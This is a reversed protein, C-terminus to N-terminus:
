SGDLTAGEVFEGALRLSNTLADYHLAAASPHPFLTFGDADTLVCPTPAPPDPPPPLPVNEVLTASTLAAFDSAGPGGGPPLLAPEATLFFFPTFVPPAGPPGGFAFVLRALPPDSPSVEQLHLAIPGLDPDYPPDFLSAFAPAELEILQGALSFRGPNAPTGPSLRAAWAGEAAIMLRRGGGFPRLFFIQPFSGMEPSALSASFCAPGALPGVLQLRAAAPGDTALSEVFLGDAALGLPPATLDVADGPELLLHAPLTLHAALTRADALPPAVRRALDLLAPASRADLWDLSHTLPPNTENSAANPAAPAPEFPFFFPAADLPDAPDAAPHIRDILLGSPLPSPEPHTEATALPHLAAAPTLSALTALPPLADARHLTLRDGRSRLWAAMERAASDILNGLRLQSSNLVRAFAAGVATLEDRIADFSAAHLSSPDLAAFRPDTLLVELVDIPHDALGGGSLPWGEVRATVTGSPVRDLRLLQVDRGALSISLPAFSGPALPLGSARADTVSECVHDAVFWTFGDAPEARVTAGASHPVPPEIRTIPQAPTGLAVNPIDLADYEILEDGIQATGSPPFNELSTVFAQDDDIAFPASLETAAGLDFPLLRLRDFAGFVVPLARGTLATNQLPTPLSLAVLNFERLVPRDALLTLPDALHLTLAGAERVFSQLGGTLMVVADPPDAILNDDLWVLRLAAAFESASARLLASTPSLISGPLPDALRLTATTSILGGPAFGSRPAMRYDPTELLAPLYPESDITVPLNSARLALGPGSLDLLWALQQSPAFRRSNAAPSIPKM